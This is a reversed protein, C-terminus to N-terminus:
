HSTTKADEPAEKEWVPRDISVVWTGMGQWQVAVKFTTYLLCSCPSHKTTDFVPSWPNNIKKFKTMIKEINYEMEFNLFLHVEM